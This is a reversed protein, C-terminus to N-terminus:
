KAAKAPRSRYRDALRTHRTALSQETGSIWLRKVESRIDLIDGTAAFFRHTRAPEISGLLDGLATSNRPSLPSPPSRPRPPCVSPRPRRPSTPSTASAPPASATSAKASRSPSAPRTCSARPRPIARRLCRLGAGPLTFVESYIVAIKRQALEDALMWADRGGVIVIRLRPHPESWKLAARIERLGQAHIMSRCNAACCPGCPKGRPCWQAAPPANKGPRPM